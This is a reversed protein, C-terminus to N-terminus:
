ALRRRRSARVGRIPTIKAHQERKAADSPHQYVRQSKPDEHGMLEQSVVPHMGREAADTGWRHRLRHLGFRGHGGGRNFARSMAQYVGNPTLQGGTASVFLHEDPRADQPAVGSLLPRSRRLYLRLAAVTERSLPIRRERDWKSARVMVWADDFDVDAIAVRTVEGTRIGTDGDLWVIAQDRARVAQELRTRGGHSGGLLRDIDGAKAVKLVRPGMRPMIGRKGGEFPDNPYFGEMVLWRVFTRVVRTYAHVSHSSLTGKGKTKPRRELAAIYDVCLQKSISGLIPAGEVEDLWARFYSWDYRYTRETRDNIISASGALFDEFLEDLPLQPEFRPALGHAFREAGPRLNPAGDLPYAVGSQDAAPV